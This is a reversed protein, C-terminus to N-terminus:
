NGVKIMKAVSPVGQANLAFLMYYGPPTINATSNLNLQYSGAQNSTFAVQKFRQDTNLSHTVSSLRILTFKTIDASGTITFAQAYGVAGPASAISPRPGKQLYPPTFIEADPHNVKCDGCGGGGAAFVRGDPLLLAVSHYTRPIAMPALATWTNTAPSYLEPTLVADVDSFTIGNQNGGVVLVTGDPLIVGNAYGRPYRMSPVQQTQVGNNIDLTYAKASTVNDSIGGAVLIKGVDYMAFVGTAKGENGLQGAAQVAGNGNVDYWQMDVSPGPTFLKGNPALFLQPYLQGGGPLLPTMVANTLTRWTTGNWIEGRGDVGTIRDGGLTFVEGNPLTTSTPYWRRQAMDGSKTWTNTTPNFISTTTVDLGGGNVFVSGDALMATGPCFMEHQTNTVLSETVQNTTPDFLATYTQILRGASVSVRDDGSWALVKGNPLLAAAIPVLPLAIKNSWEGLPAESPTGSPATAWATWTSGEVTSNTYMRNDGGQVTQYLRGDLVELVPAAITIGPINQWAAWTNGDATSRTWIGNDIGRVTQYLRGNFAKLAPAASTLGGTNSWTTWTNGDATSRAWISSDIGRVVQYLRGNFVELAPTASTLGGTTIWDTWTNGDATSRTYIGDNTGRVAQYLRGNFAKLAPAASTLGGTSSWATWTNGDATSRTYISSDIGRVAQYLRGNFVELSPQNLAAGPSQQWASWTQGNASSRLYIRNDNTRYTQYLLGLFAQTDPVGVGALADVGPFFSQIQAQALLQSPPSFKSAARGISPDKGIKLQSLADTASAPSTTSAILQPLGEASQPEVPPSPVIPNAQSDHAIAMMPALLGLCVCSGALQWFRWLKFQCSLTAADKM